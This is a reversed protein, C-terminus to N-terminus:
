ATTPPMASGFGALTANCSFNPSSCTASNLSCPKLNPRQTSTPYQCRSNYRRARQAAEPTDAMHINLENENGVIGRPTSPATAEAGLMQQLGSKRGVETIAAMGDGVNQHELGFRILWRRLDGGPKLEHPADG